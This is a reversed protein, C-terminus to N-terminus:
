AERAVTGESARRHAAAATARLREAVAEPQHVGDLVLPDADAVDIRLRGIGLAREFPRAPQVTVSKIRSLDVALSPNRFGRDWFLRRTTLRYNITVTRYGCRLLQVLWVLAILSYAAYRPPFPLAPDTRAVYWAAFAIGLALLGCAVFSPLMTRGAYAGWWVDAEQDEDPDADPLRLGHM